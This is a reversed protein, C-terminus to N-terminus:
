PAAAASLIKLHDIDGMGKKGVGGAIRVAALTHRVAEAEEVGEEGVGGDRGEVQADEAVQALLEEM